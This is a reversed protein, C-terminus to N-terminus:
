PFFPIKSGKISPYLLCIDKQNKYIYIYIFSSLVHAFAWRGEDEEGIEIRRRGALLNGEWCGHDDADEEWIGLVGERLRGREEREGRKEREDWLERELQERERESRSTRVYHLSAEGAM